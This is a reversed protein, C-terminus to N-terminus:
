ISLAISNEGTQYEVLLQLSELDTGYATCAAGALQLNATIANGTQSVGSLTYGPYSTVDRTSLAIAAAMLSRVSARTFMKGVYGTLAEIEALIGSIYPVPAM